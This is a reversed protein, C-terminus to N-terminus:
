PDPLLRAVRRCISTRPRAATSVSGFHRLCDCPYWAGTTGSVTQSATATMIKAVLLTFRFALEIATSLNGLNISQAYATRIASGLGFGRSIASASSNSAYSCVVPRAFSMTAFASSACIERRLKSIQHTVAIHHHLRARDEGLMARQGHSIDALLQVANKAIAHRDLVSAPNGFRRRSWRRQAATLGRATLPTWYVLDPSKSQARLHCDRFRLDRRIPGM